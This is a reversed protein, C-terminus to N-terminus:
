DKLHHFDIDEIKSGAKEDLYMDNDFQGESKAVIISVMSDGTVNVATRTMDLLRDVGIILAIGEVPLGVQELVMALMILGVGPVGATGISALTATLVVTVYDALTLDQSFVQAIFVTAVGQMIATGDMNITAGLPVTFSAISNKVGMKKTATELTVPITANSSATSFAFITADRMKKLFIIPNLGTMLKLILPYTIVAHGILVFLVVLFYVILNGFTELSVTTFLTALLAFVGYPALNMLIAVLRMIVESLDEFLSAIREGAKGSLAIAIGFLLAFIIIQLMKGQAFAEFPNTPFMQIIVQAFSPAERSSFSTNATMGVGEGPGIIIAVFIAFSIAIATTILYLGIAKGGIRGLKTTDQLSCVGCVLSVFVLPVVLMRLSAMFIQGIIELVGDVLFNQLSLEFLYLNFVLDDGNPMLVQLFSGLAIGSIMGIVIRTTLSSKQLTTM